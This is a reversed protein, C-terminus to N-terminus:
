GPRADDDSIPNHILTGYMNMISILNFRLGVMGDEELGEVHGAGADGGYEVEEELRHMRKLSAIAM